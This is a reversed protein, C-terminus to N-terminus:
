HRWRLAHGDEMMPELFGRFSIFCSVPPEQATGAENVNFNHEGDKESPSTGRDMEFFTNDVVAPVFDPADQDAALHWRAGYGEALRVEFVVQQPPVLHINRWTAGSIIQRLKELALRCHTEQPGRVEGWWGARAAHKTWAKAGVSLKPSKAYPIQFSRELSEVSPFHAFSSSCMMNKVNHTGLSTPLPQPYCLADKTAVTLRSGLLRAIGLTGMNAVVLRLVNEPDSGSAPLVEQRMVTNFTSVSVEDEDLQPQPDFAFPLAGNNAVCHEVSHRLVTLSPVSNATFYVMANATTPISADRCASLLCQRFSPLDTYGTSQM